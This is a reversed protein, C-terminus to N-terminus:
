EQGHACYVVLPRDPHLDGGWHGVDGPERRVAAILMRDDADFAAARRVDNVLPAAATGLRHYLAQASISFRGEDRIHAGRPALPASSPRDATQRPTQGVGHRSMYAIIDADAVGFNQAVDPQSRSSPQGFIVAPGRCGGRLWKPRGLTAGDGAARSAAPM